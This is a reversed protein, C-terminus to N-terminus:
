RELYREYASAMIEIAEDIGLTKVNGVYEEFESIDKIGMIFQPTIEQTLTLIDSMIHNFREGEAGTMSIDPITYESDRNASWVEKALLQKQSFTSDLRSYAIKFPGFELCHVYIAMDVDMGDPNSTILETLYPKGDSGYNFSEGEIGYSALLSGEESYWYNIYKGLVELDECKSSVNWGESAVLTPIDAFHSIDGETLVPETLATLEFDPSVLAGAEDYQHYSSQTMDWICVEGNAIINSPYSIGTAYMFDSYILGAEWWTNMLELYEKFGDEIPGYKIQGDVVFFPLEGTMANISGLTGFASVFRTGSVGSPDLGYTAGYEINLATLVTTYDDITVPVDLGLEDLMDQRIVGGKQARAQDRVGYFAVMNGSDTIVEKEVSYEDILATYNPIYEDVLENLRIFVEDEISADAGAKYYNIGNVMIDPYDGASILINFNESSSEAASFLMNLNVNTRKAMEVYVANNSLDSIYNAARPNQTTWFTYTIEEDIIPLSIATDVKNQQKEPAVTSEPAQTGSSQSSDGSETNDGQGGCGSFLLVLAMLIAIPATLKRQLM